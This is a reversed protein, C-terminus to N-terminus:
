DPPCALPRRDSDAMSWWFILNLILVATGTTVGKEYSRPGHFVIPIAFQPVSRICAADCAVKDAGSLNTQSLREDASGFCRRWFITPGSTGAV